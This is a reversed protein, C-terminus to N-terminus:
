IKEIIARCRYEGCGYDDIENVKLTTISYGYNFYIDIYADQIEIWLKFAEEVTCGYETYFINLNHVCFRMMIQQPEGAKLSKKTPKYRM